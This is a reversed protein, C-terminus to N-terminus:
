FLRSIFDPFREIDYINDSSFQYERWGSVFRVRIGDAATSIKKFIAVSLDRRYSKKATNKKKAKSCKLQLRLENTAVNKRNVSKRRMLFRFM